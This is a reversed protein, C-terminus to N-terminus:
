YEADTEIGYNSAKRPIPVPYQAASASRERAQKEYAAAFTERVMRRVEAMGVQAILKESAWIDGLGKPGGPIVVGVKVHTM